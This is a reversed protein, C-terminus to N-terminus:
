KQNHECKQENVCNVNKKKKMKRNGFLYWSIRTSKDQIKEKLEWKIEVWVLEYSKKVQM